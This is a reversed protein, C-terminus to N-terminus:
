KTVAYMRTDFGLDLIRCTNLNYFTFGVIIVVGSFILILFTRWPHPANVLLHPFTCTIIIRQWSSLEQDHHQENGKM